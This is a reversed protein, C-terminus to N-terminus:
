PHRLLRGNRGGEVIGTEVTKRGNIFVHGIGEPPIDPHLFNAKSAITQPDFVVIDAYYGKQLQGRQQLKFHEAPVSTMKRIATELPLLKKERVYRALFRPYCGHFLPSPKGIGTILTDTSIAVEPHRLPAITSAETLADDPQALAFFVLVRGSEEVLLDCAADLPHQKRERAIDVLRRGECHKNAPTGVAMIRISEWGMLRIMNLSWSNGEVHPWKMKGHEIDHLIRKRSSRDTFNALLEQKSGALAWPPFFALLYTFATTTPMVDMGVSVGASRASMM